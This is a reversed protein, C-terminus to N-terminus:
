RARRGRPVADRRPRPAAPGRRDPDKRKPKAAAPPRPPFPELNVGPPPPIGPAAPAFAIGFYVPFKPRFSGRMGEDRVNYERLSSDAEDGGLTNWTDCDPEGTAAIEKEAQLAALAHSFNTGPKGDIQGTSFGARDLLVQFSLYDGCPLPPPEPSIKTGPKQQS